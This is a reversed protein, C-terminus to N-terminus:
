SIPFSCKKNELYKELAKIKDARSHAGSIGEIDHSLTDEPAEKSAGSDSSAGKAELQEKLAAIDAEYLALQAELNRVRKEAKLRDSTEDIACLLAADVASVRFSNKPISRMKKNLTDAVLAVFDESEDTILTLISGGINVSVRKKNDSM